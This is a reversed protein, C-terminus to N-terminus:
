KKPASKKRKSKRLLALAKAAGNMTSREHLRDIKSAKTEEQLLAPIDDISVLMSRGIKKAIGLRKAKEWVTRGTLHIGSSATIRRAIEDPTLLGDLLTM